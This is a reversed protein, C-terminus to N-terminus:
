ILDLLHVIRLTPNPFPIITKLPDYNCIYWLISGGEERKQTECIKLFASIEIYCITMFLVQKSIILDPLNFIYRFLFAAKSKPSVFLFVQIKIRLNHLLFDLTLALIGMNMKQRVRFFDRLGPKFFM